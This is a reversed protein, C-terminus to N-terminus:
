LRQWSTASRRCSMQQKWLYLYFVLSKGDRVFLEPNIEKELLADLDYAGKMQSSKEFFSSVREAKPKTEKVNENQTKGRSGRGGFRLPTM